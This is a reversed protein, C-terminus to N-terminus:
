DKENPRGRERRFLPIPNEPERRKGSGHSCSGACVGAEGPAPDAGEGREFIVTDSKAKQTLARGWGACLFAPPTRGASFTEQSLCNAKPHDAAYESRVQQKKLLELSLALERERGPVPALLHCIVLKM